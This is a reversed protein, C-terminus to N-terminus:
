KNSNTFCPAKKADYTGVPASPDNEVQLNAGYWMAVKLLPLECITAVAKLERDSPFHSDRSWQRLRTQLLELQDATPNLHDAANYLKRTKRPPQQAASDAATSGSFPRKGKPRTASGHRPPTHVATATATATAMASQPSPDFSALSQHGQTPSILDQGTHATHQLPPHATPTQCDLPPLATGSPYRPQPLSTIYSSDEFSPDANFGFFNM